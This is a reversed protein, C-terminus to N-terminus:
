TRKASRWWGCAFAIARRRLPAESSCGIRVGGRDAPFCHCQYRCAGDAGTVSIACRPMRAAILALQQRREAECTGAFRPAFTRPLRRRLRRSQHIERSLGLLVVDRAGDLFAVQM